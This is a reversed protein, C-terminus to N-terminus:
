SMKKKKGAEPSIKVLDKKEKSQIHHACKQMLVSRPVNGADKSFMIIAPRQTKYKCIVTQVSLHLGEPKLHYGLIFWVEPAGCNEEKYWGQYRQIEKMIGCLLATQTSAHKLICGCTIIAQNLELM